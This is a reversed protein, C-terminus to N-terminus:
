KKVRKWLMVLPYLIPFTLPFSVILLRDGFELASVGAEKCNSPFYAFTRKYLKWFDKLRSDNSM